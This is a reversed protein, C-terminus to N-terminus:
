EPLSYDYFVESTLRAIRKKRIDKKIRLQKRIRESDSITPLRNLLASLLVMVLLLGVGLVDPFTQSV